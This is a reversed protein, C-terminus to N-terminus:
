AAQHMEEGLSKFLNFIDKKKQYYTEFSDITNFFNAYKLLNRERSELKQVLYEILDSNTNSIIDNRLEYSM